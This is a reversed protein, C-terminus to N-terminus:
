AWTAIGLARHVTGVDRRYAVAAQYRAEEEAESAAAVQLAVGEPLLSLATAHSSPDLSLGGSAGLEDGLFFSTPELQTQLASPSLVSSSAILTLLAFTPM